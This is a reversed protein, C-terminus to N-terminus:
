HATPFKLFAIAFLTENVIFFVCLSKVFIDFYTFIHHCCPKKKHLMDGLFPKSLLSVIDRCEEVGTSFLM